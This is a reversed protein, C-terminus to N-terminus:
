KKELLMRDVSDSFGQLFSERLMGTKGTEPQILKGDIFAHDCAYNWGESYADNQKEDIHDHLKM